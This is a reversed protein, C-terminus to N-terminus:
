INLIILLVGLPVESRLKNIVRSFMMRCNEESKGIIESIEKYSMEEWVRLMIIERHEAKLKGLYKKVIELKEKNGVGGEINADYGMGYCDEIDTDNKKTRYYDIVLNRAVTYIWANFNNTHLDSKGMSKLVKFFTKSTLDEATERHNTKYYIFNYIKKVYADYIYVFDSNDGRKCKQIIKEINKDM